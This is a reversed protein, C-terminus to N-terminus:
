EMAYLTESEAIVQDRFRRNLFGPTNLDVKRGVLATLEEELAFFRLGVSTGPEFEVLMDIDSASSFDDRLASGFVALRRISNRRCFEDIINRSISFNMAIGACASVHAVQIGVAGYHRRPHICRRKYLVQELL